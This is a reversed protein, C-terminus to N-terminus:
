VFQFFNLAYWEKREYTEIFFSIERSFKELFHRHSLFLFLFNFFIYYIIPFSYMSFRIATSYLEILRMIALDCLIRTFIALLLKTIYPRALATHILNSTINDYIYYMLCLFQNAIDRSISNSSTFWRFIHRIYTTALTNWEENYEKEM